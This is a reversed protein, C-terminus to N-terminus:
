KHHHWLGEWYMTLFYKSAVEPLLTEWSVSCFQHPAMKKSRRHHLTGHWGDNLSYNYHESCMRECSPTMFGTQAVFPSNVVFISGWPDRRLMVSCFMLLHRETVHAILRSSMVKSGAMLIAFCPLTSLIIYALATPRRFFLIPQKLECKFLSWGLIIVLQTKKNFFSM